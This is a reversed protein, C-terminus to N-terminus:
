GPPPLIISRRLKQRLGPGGKLGKPGATALDNTPVEAEHFTVTGESDSESPAAAAVTAQVPLPAENTFPSLEAGSAEMMPILSTRVIKLLEAALSSTFDFKAAEAGPVHASIVGFFRDGIYFAFTATRNVVRSSIVHGGPGYTEHRHDGTGTKGGITYFKGDSRQYAKYVRRATGSEVVSAMARKLARAVEPKLVQEFNQQDERILKTEYPTGAALHVENLRVLPLKKGDNLIIGVLEALAIPRDGSSGIASALSPVMSSFPYGVKRWQKHIEEFSEMEMLTRIRIDQARLSPTKFLWEYVIQRENKSNQLAETISASPHTQLYAVLWLELPHVRALFGQDQLNFKGPTLENYWKESLAPSISKNPVTQQIFANMDELSDNPRVYRFMVAAQRPSARSGKALTPLLESPTTGKYREYFKKLFYSGEQDAFKSLFHMRVPDTRTGGDTVKKQARTKAIAPQVVAKSSSNLKVGMHYVYYRSLDRMLRVFPLNISHTLAEQITPNRGNDEKKFNM